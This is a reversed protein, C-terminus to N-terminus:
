EDKGSGRLLIGKFDEKDVRLSYAMVSNLFNSPLVSSQGDFSPALVLSLLEIVDAAGDLINEAVIDLLSNDRVTDDVMEDVILEKQSRVQLMDHHCM